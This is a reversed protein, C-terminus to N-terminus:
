SAEQRERRNIEKFRRELRLSCRRRQKARLSAEIRLGESSEIAYLYGQRLIRWQGILRSRERTSTVAAVQRLLEDGVAECTSSSADGEGTAGQLIWFWEGIMEARFNWVAKEIEPDPEPGALWIMSPHFLWSVLLRLREVTRGDGERLVGFLSYRSPWAGAQDANFEAVSRSCYEVLWRLAWLSSARKPAEKAARDPLWGGLPELLDYIRLNLDFGSHLLAGYVDAQAAEPSEDLLRRFWHLADFKSAFRLAKFIDLVFRLAERHHRSGLLEEFWRQVLPQLQDHRLMERILGSLGSLIRRRLHGQKESGELLQLLQEEVSQDDDLPEELADCAAELAVICGTLWREDFRGPDVLAMDVTISIARDRLMPYGDMEFLLGADLLQELRHRLFLPHQQRLVVLLNRRLYPEVFDLTYVGDEQEVAQVHCSGLIDDPEEHWLDLLARDQKRTVRRTTGDDGVEETAVEVGTTRGALLIEMLREMEDSRLNLCHAVVYLVTRDVPSAEKFLEAADVTEVARRRGVSSPVSAATARDQVVEELRGPGKSLLGRVAQFLEHESRSDGWLGADRQSEIQRALEMARDEEFHFRLLPRLVPIRAFYYREEDEWERAEELKAELPDLIESRSALALVYDKRDELLEQTSWLLSIDRFMSDLFPLSNLNVVVVKPKPSEVDLEALSRLTWEAQEEAGLSEFDLLRKECAAFRESALLEYCAGHLIKTDLCGLAVIRQKELEEEWVTIQRESVVRCQGYRRAHYPLTRDFKTKKTRHDHGGANINEATAINFIAQISGEVSTNMHTAGAVGGSSVEAQREGNEGTPEGGGGEDGSGGASSGSNEPSADVPSSTGSDGSAATGSGQGARENEVGSTAVEGQGVLGDRGKGPVQGPSEPEPPVKQGCPSQDSDEKTAQKAEKTASKGQSGRTAAESPEEQGQQVEELQKPPEITKQSPASHEAKTADQPRARGKSKGDGGGGASEQVKTQTQPM